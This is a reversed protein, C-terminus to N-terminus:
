LTFFVFFITKDKAVVILVGAPWFESMKVAEGCRVGLDELRNM